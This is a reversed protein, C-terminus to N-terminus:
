EPDGDAAAMRAPPLGRSACEDTRRELGDGSLAPAEPVPLRVRFLTGGGARAEAAISGGHAAVIGHCIALGLGVGPGRAGTGRVFKEFPRQRVEDPLGPGRDAVVLEIGDGMRRASLEIPTVEGGSGPAGADRGHRLANELLNVLLQEILVPDVFLLPLDPALAVEVRRGALPKDVASRASGVIEELPVWDRRLTVDGAELRTMSLLNTVLRELREAGDCVTEVLEDHAGGDSPALSRLATAAGTIAALPTRLDHSVAALLASRMTETRAKLLASSAQEALVTRELAISAQRCFAQLFRRQETSLSAGDRRFLALVAIPRQVPGLPMAISRAGPLADTGTGAPRGHDFAWRAVAQENADLVLRNPESALSALRDQADPGLIAAGADFTRAALRAIRLAADALLVVSGLESSLAVLAATHAERARAEQEQRRLRTALESSLIGVGFMMAFTMLFRIDSVRFTLFPPVFFFDYAAVALAAALLSPGRGLRVAAAIVALLFLMAVDPVGLGFHLPAAVATTAAILLVAKLSAVWDIPRSGPPPPPDSRPEDSDGSIVLVEIEGSGRVIADLLSGRLRDRLKSHTPKGIVIRTVNERRAFSLLEEAIRPGSLRAITAGLSEALRLHAELRAADAEDMAGSAPTDAYAAIWPAHLSTALRRATRLLRGSSPAPGVCVLIREVTAWPDTVGQAERALRVDEDVAQAIRRLALERLALLNGRRFFQDAARLAQEPLYVKGEHLRELLEEPAIDVLEIEDARELLSDPITERIPVGTIQAVVDNLSEVHQVNVTTYVDIGADLLELVDQWRKPHRSGPANTHALEDVILLRPKRALAADLDFEELRTGRYEVPKRPLIELGLLLAATDFRQHTEVLGVVVDPVKQEVVLDRAVQLMRYTKGVGPAFGFFIKLKARNARAEDDSMRRLLADPDPRSSGDSM